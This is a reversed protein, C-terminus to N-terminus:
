FMVPRAVFEETGFFMELGVGLAWSPERPAMPDDRPWTVGTRLELVLWDRLISRRYGFKLGYDKIPVDADLETSTFLEVIVARRPPFERLATFGTYGRVGESQQSITGSATGRLLWSERWIGELDVRSTFGFDESNQWFATERLSFLATDLSGRQWRYSAKVYPDLPTRVRVGGSATFRDKKEPQRYRIGFITQDDEVPEGRQNALAGSEQERETVFEERNVRGIFADFRENIRPLPLNVRFRLKPKLGDFEDWLLSPAVSGSIDQYESEDAQSGFVRDIGMASRWLTWYLGHQMRDLWPERSVEAAQEQQPDAPGQQDDPEAQHQQPSQDTQLEQGFAHAVQLLLLCVLALRVRRARTRIPEFGWRM